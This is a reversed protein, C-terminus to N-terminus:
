FKFLTSLTLFHNAMQIKNVPNLQIYEWQYSLRLFNNKNIKWLLQSKSDITYFDGWFYFEKNNIESALFPKIYGPRWAYTGVPLGLDYQFGFSQGWLEFPKQISLIIGASFFGDFNFSSNSFRRIDRYDWSNHSLLGAFFSWDNQTYVKYSLSYHGRASVALASNPNDERNVNPYLLAGFGSIDLRSIWKKNQYYYGGSISGLNGSYSVPSMSNDKITQFAYGLGFPMYHGEFLQANLAGVNLGLLLLLSAKLRGM